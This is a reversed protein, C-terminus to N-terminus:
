FGNKDSKGYVQRLKVCRVGNRKKKRENKKHSYARKENNKTAYKM